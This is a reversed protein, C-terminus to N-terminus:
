AEGASVSDLFYGVVRANTDGIVGGHLEDALYLPVFAKATTEAKEIVHIGGSVGLGFASGFDAEAVVGLFTMEVLTGQGLLAVQVHTPSQSLPNAGHGEYYADTSSEVALALATVDDAAADAAEGSTITVIDNRVFTAGSAVPFRAFNPAETHLRARATAITAM